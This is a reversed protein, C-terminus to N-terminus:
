ALSYKIEFSERFLVASFEKWCFCYKGFLLGFLNLFTYFCLTRTLPTLLFFFIYFSNFVASSFDVRGIYM